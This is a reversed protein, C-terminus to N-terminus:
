ERDSEEDVTEALLLALRAPGRREALASVAEPGREAAAEFAYTLLADAALLDLAGARGRDEALSAGLCHFASRALTEEIGAAEGPGGESRAEVTRIAERMREQLAPPPPAERRELWAIAEAAADM